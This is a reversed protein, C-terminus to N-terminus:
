ALMTCHGLELLVYGYIALFYQAQTHTHAHALRPNFIKMANSNGLTVGFTANWLDNLKQQVSVKIEKPLGAPLVILVCCGVFFM